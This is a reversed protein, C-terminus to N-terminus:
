KMGESGTCSDFFAVPPPNWESPRTSTIKRWYPSDPIFSVAPRLKIPMIEDLDSTDFGFGLAWGQSM